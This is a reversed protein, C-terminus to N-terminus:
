QSKELQRSAKNQKGLLILYWLDDNSFKSHYIMKFIKIMIRVANFFKWLTAWHRSVDTQFHKLKVELMSTYLKNYLFLILFNSNVLLFVPKPLKTQLKRPLLNELFNYNTHLVNLFFHLINKQFNTM